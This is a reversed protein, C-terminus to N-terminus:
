TPRSVSSSPHFCPPLNSKIIESPLLLGSNCLCYPHNSFSISLVLTSCFLSKLCPDWNTHSKSVHYVHSKLAQPFSPTTPIYHQPVSETPSSTHICSLFGWLGVYGYLYECECSLLSIFISIDVLYWKIAMLICFNFLHHLHCSVPEGCPVLLCIFSCQAELFAVWSKKTFDCVSIIWERQLM